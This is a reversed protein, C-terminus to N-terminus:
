NQSADWLYAEGDCFVSKIPAQTDFVIQSVHIGLKLRYAYLENFVNLILQPQFRKTLEFFFTGMILNCKPNPGEKVVLREGDPGSVVYATARDSAERECATAAVCRVLDTEGPRVKEFLDPKRKYVKRLGTSAKNRMTSEFMVELHQDGLGASAMMQRYNAPLEYGEKLQNRQAATVGIDNILLVLRSFRGQDLAETVLRVGLEFSMAEAEGENSVDRMYDAYSYHGAVILSREVATVSQELTEHLDTHITTLM